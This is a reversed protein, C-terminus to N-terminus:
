SWEGNPSFIFIFHSADFVDCTGQLESPSFGIPLRGVEQKSEDNLAAKM